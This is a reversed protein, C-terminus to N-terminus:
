SRNFASPASALFQLPHDVLVVGLVLDRRELEEEVQDEHEREGLDRAQEHVVGRPACHEAPHEDERRL